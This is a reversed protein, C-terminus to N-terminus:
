SPLSKALYKAKRLARCSRCERSGNPNIYTNSDSWIHGRICHTWGVRYGNGRHANETPTVPELHDPNVCRTNRCLHDIFLGEPIPGVLLEWVARHALTTRGQVTVKGYRDHVRLWEWCGDGMEGILKPLRDILPVPRRGLQPKTYVRPRPVPIHTPDGYRRWRAYHAPCWGRAIAARSCGEASCTM